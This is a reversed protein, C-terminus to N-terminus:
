YTIGIFCPIRLSPKSPKHTVIELDSTDALNRGPPLYTLSCCENGVSTNLTTGESVTLGLVDLEDIEADSEQVTYVVTIASANVFSPVSLVKGNNLLINLTGTLDLAETFTINLTITKGPVFIGSDTSGIGYVLVTRVENSYDSKLGATNYATVAIYYVTGDDPLSHLTFQVINPDAFNAGPTSPNVMIPSPGEAANVGAYTGSATGYHLYYGAIDPEENQNWELQVTLASAISTFFLLLVGILCSSLYKKFM